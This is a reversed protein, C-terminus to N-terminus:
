EKVVLTGSGLEVVIDGNKFHYTDAHNVNGHENFAYNYTISEVKKSAAIAQSQEYHYQDYFEYYSTSPEVPQNNNGRVLTVLRGIVGTFYLIAALALVLVIILIIIIVKKRSKSGKDKAM